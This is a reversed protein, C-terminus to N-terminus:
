CLLDKVTNYIGNADFGFKAYLAEPPGYGSFVDPIGLRKFDVNLKEDAIIEAIAGGLGGAIYHEEVTIIKGMDNAASLVAERDLPKVTHMDIVRASIGEKELKGSAELANAGGIGCAIIAIDSGEKVTISKGVEYDYEKDYVVPEMGRGIRIYSPGEMYVVKEVAKGVQAPDGPVIVTMKPIARMIAIDMLANHTTGGGSTVGGHTAVMNVNLNMYAVDTHIQDLDRMSAFAAFTSVFPIKGKLALGAAMGILDQEAIGVNIFRDPFADRFLGTKNTRALDATMVIIDKNKKGLEVLTHGYVERATMMQLSGINITHGVPNGM